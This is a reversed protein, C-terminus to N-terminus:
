EKMERRERKIQQKERKMQKYVAKQQELTINVNESERVFLDIIRNLSTIYDDNMESKLTENVKNRLFAM